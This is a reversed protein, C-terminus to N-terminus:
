YSHPTGGGDTNDLGNIAIIIVVIILCVFLFTKMLTTKLILSFLIGKCSEEALADTKNCDPIQKVSHKMTIMNRSSFSIRVTMAYIAHILIL